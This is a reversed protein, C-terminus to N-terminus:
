YVSKALATEFGSISIRLEVPIMASKEAVLSYLNHRRSFAVTYAM